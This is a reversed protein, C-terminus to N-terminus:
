RHLAGGERGARLQDIRIRLTITITIGAYLNPNRNRKPNRTTHSAGRSSCKEANLRMRSPYRGRQGLVSLVADRWWLLILHNM